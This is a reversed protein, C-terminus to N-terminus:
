YLEYIRIDFIKNKFHFIFDDNNQIYGCKHAFSIWMWLRLSNSNIKLVQTRNCSLKIQIFQKFVNSSNKSRLRTGALWKIFSNKWTHNSDNQLNRLINFSSHSWPICISFPWMYECQYENRDKTNMRLPM